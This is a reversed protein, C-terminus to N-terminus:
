RAASQFTQLYTLLNDIERESGIGWFRMKNDPVVKGPAHLFARLTDTSWVIGSGKMAASYAYDTTSGARRGFLGNLHPGFSARASPGVKHCSACKSQFSARGAQVDGAAQVPSPSFVASLVAFVVGPIVASVGRASLAGPFPLQPM